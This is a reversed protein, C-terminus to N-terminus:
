GTGQLAGRRSLHLKQDGAKSLHDAADRLECSVGHPRYDTPLLHYPSLLIEEEEGYSRHTPFTLSGM